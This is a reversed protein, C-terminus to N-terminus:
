GFYPKLTNNYVITKVDEYDLGMNSLIKVAEEFLIGNNENNQKWGAFGTASYDLNQITSFSEAISDSHKITEKIVKECDIGSIDVNTAGLSSLLNNVAAEKDPISDLVANALANHKNFRESMTGTFFSYDKYDYYNILGNYINEVNDKTFTVGLMNGVTNNLENTIFTDFGKIMTNMSDFTIDNNNAFNTIAELYDSTSGLDLKGSIAGSLLDTMDKDHMFNDLLEKPLNFELGDINKTLLKNVIGIGDDGLSSMIGDYNEVLAGLPNTKFGLLSVINGGTADFIANALKTAEEETLGSGILANKVDDFYKEGSHDTPTNTTPNTPKAHPTNNTSTTNVGRKSLMQRICNLDLMFTGDNEQFDLVGNELQKLIGVYGTKIDKISNILQQKSTNMSENYDTFKNYKSQLKTYCNSIEKVDNDIDDIITNIEDLKTLIGGDTETDYTFDNYVSAEKALKSNNDNWTTTGM